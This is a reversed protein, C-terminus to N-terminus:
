AEMSLNEFYAVIEELTYLWNSESFIMPSFKGPLTSRIQLFFAQTVTLAQEGHM